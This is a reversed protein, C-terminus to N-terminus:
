KVVVKQTAGGVAVVYVGVPVAVEVTSGASAVEFVKAGTLSYVSVNQGAAGNVVLGGTVSFANVKAVKNLDSSTAGGEYYVRINDFHFTAVVHNQLAFQKYDWATLASLDYEVHVWKNAELAATFREANEAVVGNRMDLKIKLENIDGVVDTIYVDLAFKLPKHSFVGEDKWLNVGQWGGSPIYKLVYNSPNTEDQFPNAIAVPDEGGWKGFGQTTNNEFDAIVVQAFAGSFGILCAILLYIKRM